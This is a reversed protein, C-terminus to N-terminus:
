VSDGIGDRVKFILYAGVGKRRAKFPSKGVNAILLLM